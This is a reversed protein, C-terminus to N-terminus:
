VYREFKKKYIKWIQVGLWIALLSLSVGGAQMRLRQWWSLERPVKVEVPYPVPVSDTKSVYTTDHVARDVYKKHWETIKMLITDGHQQESVHTSDKMYISDRQHKTIYTTDTRVTEVVVTRTKCSTLLAILVIILMFAFITGIARIFARLMEDRPDEDNYFYYDPMMPKGLEFLLRAFTARLNVILLPVRESAEVNENM